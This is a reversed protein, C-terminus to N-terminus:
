YIHIMIEQPDHMYKPLSLSASLDHGTGVLKKNTDPINWTYTLSGQIPAPM